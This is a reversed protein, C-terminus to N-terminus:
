INETEDPETGNEIQDVGSQEQKAALTAALCANYGLKSYEAWSMAKDPFFAAVDAARKLGHRALFEVVRKAMAITDLRGETAAKILSMQGFEHMFDDWNFEDM